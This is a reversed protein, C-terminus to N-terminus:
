TSAFQVGDQDSPRWFGPVNSERWLQRLEVLLEHTPYTKQVFQMVCM